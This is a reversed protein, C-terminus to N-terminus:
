KNGPDTFTEQRPTDILTRGALKNMTVAHRKTGGSDENLCGGQGSLLHAVSASAPVIGEFKSVQITHSWLNGLDHVFQINMEDNNDLLLFNGTKIHKDNRM